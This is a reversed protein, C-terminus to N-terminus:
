NEIKDICDSAVAGWDFGKESNLAPTIDLGNWYVKEIDFDSAEGPTGPDGNRDYWQDDTGPTYTGHVEVEIELPITIKVKEIM